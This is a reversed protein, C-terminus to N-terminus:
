AVATAAAEGRLRRRLPEYESLALGGLVATVCAALVWASVVDALAGLACLALVVSVRQPSVSGIMRLRFLSEGALYLAPGGVLMVTVPGGAVQAPHAILFNDAVAVMIIGAVIPLHLYTYADRALRGPDPAESLERRSQEAVEGFYLWWLAGTELFAVALALLADGRLSGTSAKLGTVGISEGLAIIIFAQFREAFHGGDISWEDTGARGRGPLWYGVAPGVLDVALAPGWWVMRHGSGAVGGVLWLAGSAVSWATIREFTGRLGHARDLLLAGASNRGVQLAVYAGAFLLAHDGFARPLAASMLLSELGCLVLVLRVAGSAPDFWNVMWTTYIWAWWVVLLLFGAQAVSVLSVRHDIVLHSLQTVAIVYVLDFLLEVPTTAQESGDRPRLHRDRDAVVSRQDRPTSDAGGLESCSSVDTCM